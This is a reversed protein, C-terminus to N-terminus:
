HRPRYPRLWNKGKKGEPPKVWIAGYNKGGSKRNQLGQHGEEKTLM